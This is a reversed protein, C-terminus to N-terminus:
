ILLIGKMAILKSLKHFWYSSCRFFFCWLSRSTYAKRCNPTHRIWFQPWSIFYESRGLVSLVIKNWAPLKLVRLLKFVEICSSGAKKSSFIPTKLFVWRGIFSFYLARKVQRCKNNYKFFIKPASIYSIGLTNGSKHKSHIQIFDVVEIGSSLNFM